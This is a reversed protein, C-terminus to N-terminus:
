WSSILAVLLYHSPKLSIVGIWLMIMVDCKVLRFHQGVKPYSGRLLWWWTPIRDRCSTTLILIWLCNKTAFFELELRIKARVSPIHFNDPFWNASNRLEEGDVAPSPNTLVPKITCSHYGWLQSIFIHIYIYLLNRHYLGFFVVVITICGYIVWKHEKLFFENYHFQM